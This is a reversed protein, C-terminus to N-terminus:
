QEMIAQHLAIAEQLDEFYYMRGNELVLGADCFEQLEKM